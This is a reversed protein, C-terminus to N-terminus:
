KGGFYHALDYAQIAEEGVRQFTFERYSSTNNKTAVLFLAGDSVIYCNRDELMQFTVMPIETYFLELM